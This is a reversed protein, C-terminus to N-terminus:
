RSYKELLSQINGDLSDKALEIDKNRQEMEQQTEKNIEGLSQALYRIEPVTVPQEYIKNRISRQQSLNMMKKLEAKLLKTDDLIVFNANYCECLIQTAEPNSHNNKIECLVHMVLSINYSFKRQIDQIIEKYSDLKNQRVMHALDMYEKRFDSLLKRHKKYWRADDYRGFDDVGFRSFLLIDAAHLSPYSTKKLQYRLYIHMIVVIVLAIIILVFLVKEVVKLVAAVKNLYAKCYAKNQIENVGQTTLETATTLLQELTKLDEETNEAVVANQTDLKDERSSSLSIVIQPIWTAMFVIIAMTIVTKLGLKLMDM